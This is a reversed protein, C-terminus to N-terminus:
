PGQSIPSRVILTLHLSPVPEGQHKRPRIHVPPFPLPVSTLQIAEFSALLLLRGDIALHLPHQATQRVVKKQPWDSGAQEERGQVPLVRTNESGSEQPMAKPDHGPSLQPLLLPSRAGPAHARTSRVPGTSPKRGPPSMIARHPLNVTGGLSSTPQLPSLGYPSRGPTRHGTASTSNLCWELQHRLRKTGGPRVRYSCTPSYLGCTSTRSRPPSHSLFSSKM